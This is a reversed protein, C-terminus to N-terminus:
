LPVSYRAKLRELHGVLRAPAQVGEWEAWLENYSLAEFRVRDGAVLDRFERIEARHQGFADFEQWNRPEWFLYLLTLSKTPESHSLGLYHKILQAADLYQYHDSNERLTAIHRFWPSQARHDVITDYAPAFVAKKPRLYELCKSEIALVRDEADLRLDLHPPTGKLGHPLQAEFSMTKFGCHGNVVLNSPDQHWPGFTNVVLASSSYVAAMKPPHQADGHLEQGKGDDFAQRLDEFPVGDLLNAEVSSAYAGYPEGWTGTAEAGNTQLFSQHLARKPLEYLFAREDNLCNALAKPVALVGGAAIELRDVEDYWEQSPRVFDESKMNPVDQHAGDKKEAGNKEDERGDNHSGHIRM